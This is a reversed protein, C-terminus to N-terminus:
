PTFHTKYIIARLGAPNGQKVGFLTANSNRKINKSGSVAQILPLEFKGIQQKQPRKPNEVIQVKSCQVNQQSDLTFVFHLVNRTMNPHCALQVCAPLGLLQCPVDLGDWSTM